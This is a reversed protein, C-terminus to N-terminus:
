GFASSTSVEPATVWDKQWALGSSVELAIGKSRFVSPANGVSRFVNGRPRLRGPLTFFDNFRVIALSPLPSPDAEVARVVADLGEMRQWMELVQVNLLPRAFASALDIFQLSLNQLRPLSALFNDPVRVSHPQGHDSTLVLTRLNVLRHLGASIETLLTENINLLKLERLSLAFVDWSYDLGYVCREGSFTIRLNQLSRMDFITSLAVARTSTQLKEPLHRALINLSRLQLPVAPIDAKFLRGTFFFHEVRELNPTLHRHRSLKAIPADTGYLLRVVRVHRGLSPSAELASPPWTAPGPPFHVLEFLAEQVTEQLCFIRRPM